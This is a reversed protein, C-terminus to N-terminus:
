IQLNSLEDFAELVQLIAHRQIKIPNKRPLKRTTTNKPKISPIAPLIAPINPLCNEDKGSMPVLIPQQKLTWKEFEQNSQLVTKTKKKGYKQMRNLYYHFHQYKGIWLKPGTPLRNFM